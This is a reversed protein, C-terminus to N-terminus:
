EDPIAELGQFYSFINSSSLFSHISTAFSACNRVTSVNYVYPDGTLVVDRMYYRRYFPDGM